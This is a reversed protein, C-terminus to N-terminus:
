MEIGNSGYLWSLRQNWEQPSMNKMVHNRVAATAGDPHYIYQGILRSNLQVRATRVIRQHQYAEFAAGFDDRNQAAYHALCVADEMAMCAGQAFYQLMPHAADGLLVVNGDRWNTIPDRDCLVWLKWDKGHEIIQRARPAIHEFGVAVEDHSVPQGAVAEGADRHYTVVLNFQKWGQLPYHVIHCKPGAWLTAANWRLDEPMNEYPIVSRYSAHGSVRPAGDGVLQERIRSRLGDAAVLARGYVPGRSTDLCVGDDDQQYGEIRTDTQLEVLPSRRCVDILMAHMEARHIVAYPNGMHARFDDGLPIQTIDDGTAADMLRLADIFVARERAADGVGLYDFCHFANPAIQIGAGIEGFKSSQEIVISAINNRALGAAAAMGGIGGGAIIIRDQDMLSKM